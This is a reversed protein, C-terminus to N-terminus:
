AEARVRIVRLRAGDKWRFTRVEGRAEAHQVLGQMFAIGTAMEDNAFAQIPPNTLASSLLVITKARGRTISVNLRNLSYIFESETLAAEVDAVGYSAIVADCEQGQMKDVTGVFAGSGWAGRARLKRRILGIHAHHPSVIFLGDEWFAADSAYPRGSSALLRQRLRAAVDAVVTAELENENTAQYGTTEVIVLPYDPDVLVGALGDGPGGELGLRRHRVTDDFSDYGPEYIQERPFACLVGNMRFNELLSVM